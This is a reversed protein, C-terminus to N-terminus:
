LILACAKEYNLNNLRVGIKYIKQLISVTKLQFFVWTMVLWMISNKQGEVYMM